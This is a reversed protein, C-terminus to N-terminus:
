AVVQQPRGGRDAHDDHRDEARGIVATRGLLEGEHDEGRARHAQDEDADAADGPAVRQQHAGLLQLREVSRFPLSVSMSNGFIVRRVKRLTLAPVVAAAAAAGRRSCAMSFSSPPLSKLGTLAASRLAIGILQWTHLMWSPAM